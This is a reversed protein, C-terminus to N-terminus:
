SHVSVFGLTPRGAALRRELLRLENKLFPYSADEYAGIPGGLVILLAPTSGDM